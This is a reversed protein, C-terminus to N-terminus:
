FTFALPLIEKGEFSWRKPEHGPTELTRTSVLALIFFIKSAPNAFLVLLNYISNENEM